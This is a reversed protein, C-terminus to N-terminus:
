GPPKTATWRRCTSMSCSSRSNATCSTFEHTMDENLAVVDNFLQAIEGDLGDADEALRVSFDGRRLARLASVLQRRDLCDRPPQVNVCNRPCDGGGSIMRCGGAAPIAFQM